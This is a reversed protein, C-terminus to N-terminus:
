NVTVLTRFTKQENNYEYNLIVIYKGKSVKESFEVGSIQNKNKIPLLYFESLDERIAFATTNKPFFTEGDKGIHLTFNIRQNQLESTNFFVNILNFDNGSSYENSQSIKQLNILCRSNNNDETNLFNSHQYTKEEDKLKYSVFYRGCNKSEIPILIPNSHSYIHTKQSFNLNILDLNTTTILSNKELYYEDLNVNTRKDLLSLESFSGNKITSYSIDSYKLPKSFLQVQEPELKLNKPIHFVENSAVYNEKTKEEVIPQEKLPELFIPKKNATKKTKKVFVKKTIVKTPTCDISEQSQTQEIGEKNTNAFVLSSFLLIIIAVNYKKM